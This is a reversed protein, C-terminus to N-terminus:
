TSLFLRPPHRCFLLLFFFCFFLGGYKDALTGGLLQNALYGWLFASQVIGQTGETWGLEAALPVIAVSLCIRDMNCLLLALATPLVVTAFTTNDPKDSTTAASISAKLPSIRSTQCPNQPTIFHIQRIHSNPLSCKPNLAKTTTTTQTKTQHNIAHKIFHSKIPLAQPHDFGIGMHSKICYSQM